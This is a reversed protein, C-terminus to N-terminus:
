KKLEINEQVVNSLKSEDQRQLKYLETSEM